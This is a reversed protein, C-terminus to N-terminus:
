RQIIIKGSVSQDEGSLRYFYMGEALGKLSVKIDNRGAPLKHMRSTLLKGTIDFLSFHMREPQYLELPITTEEDAPNPHCNGVAFSNNGSYEPVFVNKEKGTVYKCTEDNAPDTDGNLDTGGCIQYLGAPSIFTQNFIYQEKEGPALVGTWQETVKPDNKVKYYVDMSYITDSSMNKLMVAVQSTDDKFSILLPNMVYSVGADHGYDKCQDDNFGNSDGSLNTSACIEFGSGTPVNLTPAFVHEATDGPQLNGTWTESVPSGGNVSYEVPVSNLAATGYNVLQIRVNQGNANTYFEPDLIKSIGADQPIKALYLNFNDIAWGDYNSNTADTTYAFRFQVPSTSNDFLSLDYTSKIYGGSSGSWIHMAGNSSNYWNTGNPDNMVGLSQWSNGFSQTYQIFGGDSNTESDYWHHFELTAGQVNAFDFYPTYLLDSSNPAYTSDLNIAWVNAGSYATNIHDATPKGLEWQSTLGLGRWYDTGEFDDFYPLSETAFGTIQYYATDNSKNQDDPHTVFIKLPDNGKQLQYPSGFSVSVTQFPNLSGSWTEVVPQMDGAYFGIDFIDVTDLGLSEIEIEVQELSGVLGHQVSPKKVAKVALEVPPPEYILIDDIAIDGLPGPGRIARFRLKVVQGAYQSLDVVKQRWPANSSFQQQGIIYGVSNQWGTGDNVDIRLSYTQSGRMYYWFRVVPNNLQGFDLCPTILMAKQQFNGYSSEAYIYNGSGDDKTHDGDPGTNSTSTSGTNVYWQFGGSQKYPKTSWGNEFEGPYSSGNGPTFTEFDENYPFSTIIPNVQIEQVPMADNLTDGDIAMETHAHFTYLGAQSMDYSSVIQHNQTGGIPLIGSSVTVVPFTQPNPGTASTHIEVPHNGMNLNKYGYNILRVNVIENGAYCEGSDPKHLKVIGVDYQPIGYFDVCKKDNSPMTDTALVTMFCINHHGEAIATDAFYVTDEQTPLLQGNYSQIVDGSNDISYKVDFSNQTDTGYNKVVVAVSQQVDANLSDTPSLVDTVGVDNPVLYREHAGISTAQASRIKGDIDRPVEPIPTGKEALQHDALRLNQASVFQPLVNLSHTDMGSAAQLDALTAQDGSWYALNNGVTYYSNYDVANITAPTNYYAAHGGISDIFLNNIFTEGITNSTTNNQYLPRITFGGTGTLKVTNYYFEVDNSYYSYIGYKSGTSNINIINNYVLGTQDSPQVYPYYNSYYVRLAYKSGNDSPDYLLIENNGFEFGNFTYYAYIGYNTGSNLRNYIKNDTVILSDNYYFYMGYYYFDEIINHDFVSAQKPTNTSSGRWYIGYYGNQIHNNRFENYSDESGSSYIGTFNSSTNDLTKIVCNLIKNHNAGGDFYVVRGYTAVQSVKFTMHSFTIYDAENLFLVGSSSSGPSGEVIVDISDGSMSTFTVTNLSDVGPIENIELTEYYTGSAVEFTVDGCVSAVNLADLADNFSIFDYNNGGTTDGITYTGNMCANFMIDATDNLPVTDNLSNPQSTWAKINYVGGNFILTDVTITDVGQFSINGTWSTTGLVQGDVAWSIDASVLNNQGYNHIELKVPQEVGSLVSGTPSVITSIGADDFPYSNMEIKLPVRPSPCASASFAPNPIMNPNPQNFSGTPASTWDTADNVDYFQRIVFASTSAVGAGTWENENVPNLGTFGGASVNMNQIETATYDSAVFDKINGKDDIIMIWDDNSFALNVPFNYSDGNMKIEYPSFTGLTWTQTVPTNINSGDCIIVQWGTADFSKGSVNQIEIDDPNSSFETIMIPSSVSARAEVWYTTSDFLPPTTFYDGKYLETSATDSSYWFLTDNSIASLIVSDGYDISTDSVIPAPPEYLSIVDWSISDNNPIPDNTNDLWSMLTFTSDKGYWTIDLNISQNFTYDLTDGPAIATYISETVVSANPDDIKYSATITDIVASGVNKIQITVSETSDLGCGDVPSNTGILAIDYPSPDFEDAGMDPNSINRLDGDIDATIGAIPTGTGNMLNNAIHLDTSSAFYPDLNSSHNGEGTENQLNIFDSILLGDMNAFDGSGDAYYNNYDNHYYSTDVNQTFFVYGNAFNTFINNKMEIGRSEGPNNDYLCMSPTNQDNGSMKVTNYYYDVFRSGYNIMGCSLTNSGSTGNINIMNNYIMAHDLSDGHSSTIMLGYGVVTNPASVINAAIEFKGSANEVLIGNYSDHTSNTNIHNNVILPMNAGNIRTSVAWQNIFENNKITVNDLNDGSIFLGQTGNELRNSIFTFNNGTSDETIILASDPSANGANINQGIFQNNKFSIDHGGQSLSVVKSFNTGTSKFTMNEFTIYSAGELSLVYNESNNVANFQLIVDSSDGTASQFVISDSSTAGNIAPIAINENYTGSAVNFTVPGNIGCQSLALVADSFNNYDPSTGGITYTGSLLNACGYFSFNLTDNSLNFDVTDNPNSTWLKLTHPGQTVTKSGLNLDQTLSDQPLTGTWNYTAQANGDLTWNVDFKTLNNGGYNKVKAKVDFSSNAVVGGTPYVLQAIGADNNIGTVPDGIQVYDVAMDSTFSSGVTGVFRIQANANQYNQLSLTDRTWPDNESTHQQGTKSWIQQWNNGDFIEVSLTGMSAGYMHYSFILRPDLHNSIDFVPSTLEDTVNSSGSAETYVYGSGEYPGAPGTSGSTTQGTEHQWTSMTTNWGIPINGGNFGEELAMNQLAGSVYKLYYSYNNSTASNPQTAQDVAEVFYTVTRGFGVFPIDAEYQNGSTNVMGLTDELAGNVYYVVYATDIGSNDTIEARITQPLSFLVTDQIVPPTMTIQPPIMESPSAVVEINDILWGYNEFITSGNLDILSFRLKVNSANGALSSINFTEHKWWNNNPTVSSNGSNWSSGYATANFVNGNNGFTASGGMYQTTDLKNWTTGNDSSVEVIAKDLAEIKCIHDFDLIVYANGATSFSSTTLTLTDFPTCRASDSQAGSAFLQTSIGWNNSTASSYHVVSDAGSPQEFDEHYAVTQAQVSFSLIIFVFLAYLIKVM